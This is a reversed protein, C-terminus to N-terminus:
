NDDSPEHDEENAFIVGTMFGLTYFLVFSKHQGDDEQLAKELFDDYRKVVRKAHTDLDVWNISFYEKVVGPKGDKILEEIGEHIGRLRGLVTKPVTRWEPM